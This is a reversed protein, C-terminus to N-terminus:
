APDALHRFAAPQFSDESHAVGNTMFAVETRNKARLKKMINRVHVKVTSERMNLEYAIIKNAKGRRLADVVAAQRATFLGNGTNKSTVGGDSSRRAAMLSSAPVFIGGAQVLHMAKIAVQFPVSTPIYGRVGQELAGVIEDPDELDSLIITPLRNAAQLLLSVARHTEPGSAKGGLCLVILSVPTTDAMELWSEVTPFSLVSFGSALKICRTLCEALLLRKEIVVIYTESAAGPQITPSTTSNSLTEGNLTTIARSAKSSQIQGQASKQDQARAVIREGV